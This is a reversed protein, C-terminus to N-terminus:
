QLQSILIEHDVTDFAAIPDYLALITLYGASAIFLLDNSVNKFDLNLFRMM